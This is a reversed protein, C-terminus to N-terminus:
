AVQLQIKWENELISTVGNVVMEEWPIFKDLGLIENARTTDIVAGRRGTVAGRDVTRAKVQPSIKAVEKAAATWDLVENSLLILPHKGSRRPAASLSLVIARAVDRVDIFQPSKDLDPYAARQGGILQYIWFNSSLTALDKLVQDEAIPGLIYAGLLTIIDLEPHEDVFDWTAKEALVKSAPYTIWPSADKQFAEEPVPAWYSENLTFNSDHM